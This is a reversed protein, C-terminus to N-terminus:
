GIYSVDEGIKIKKPLKPSVEKIKINKEIDKLEEDLEKLNLKLNLKSNLIKLIERAGRVGLYNPHGFTQALLAISSINKKNSLGVLLGTVGVIPGVIGFIKENLNATKYKKVIKKNNATCYVKPTKPINPLGIGGLTIVEKCGYKKIIDLIKYCFEYCSKEDSPQVDGALLLLDRNKLKKYFLEIKPIDILNLENVFVSNPFSDSNIELLKKANLGDIIFDVVIKGVNGIGPLGEILVPNKLKPNSYQKVNFM